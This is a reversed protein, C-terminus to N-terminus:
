SESKEVFGSVVLCNSTQAGGERHASRVFDPYPSPPNPLAEVSAASLALGVGSYRPDATVDELAFPPFAIEMLEASSAAECECLSLGTLVGTHADISFRRGQYEYRYRRKVLDRGPLIHLSEYEGRTLYINVIPEEYADTPGYKKCLKYISESVSCDTMKRLRLRGADLYRDEIETYLLGSLDPLLEPVVLMRREIELQAYKPLNV